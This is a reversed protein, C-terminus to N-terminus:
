LPKGMKRCTMTADNFIGRFFLVQLSVVMKRPAKTMLVWSTALFEYIGRNKCM